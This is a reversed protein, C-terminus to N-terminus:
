RRKRSIASPNDRRVDVGGEELERCDAGCRKCRPEDELPVAALPGIDWWLKNESVGCLSVVQGGYRGKVRHWVKRGKLRGFRVPEPESQWLIKGEGMEEGRPLNPPPKAWPHLAWVRSVASM